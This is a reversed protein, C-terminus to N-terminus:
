TLAKNDSSNFYFIRLSRRFFVYLPLSYRNEGLAGGHSVGTQPVGGKIFLCSAAARMCLSMMGCASLM